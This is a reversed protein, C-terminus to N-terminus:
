NLSVTPGAESPEHYRPTLLRKFDRDRLHEGLAVEWSRALRWGLMRAQEITPPEATLTNLRLHNVEHEIEFERHHSGSRAAWESEFWEIGPFAWPLFVCGRVDVFNPAFLENAAVLDVASRFSGVTAQMAERRPGPETRSAAGDIEVLPEGMWQLIELAGATADAAGRQTVQRLMTALGPDLVEQKAERFEDLMSAATSGSDLYVGCVLGLHDVEGSRIRDRICMESGM